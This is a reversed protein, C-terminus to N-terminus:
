RRAFMANGNLLCGPAHAHRYVGARDALGYDQAIAAPEAGCFDGEIETGKPHSFVSCTRKHRGLSVASRIRKNHSFQITM